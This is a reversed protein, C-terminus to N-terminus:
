EKENKVGVVKHMTKNAHEEAAVWETFVLYCETCKFDM